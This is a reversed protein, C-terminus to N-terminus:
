GLRLCLVCHNWRTLLLLLLLLLLRVKEEQFLDKAANCHAVVLSLTIDRRAIEDLDEDALAKHALEYVCANEGIQLM